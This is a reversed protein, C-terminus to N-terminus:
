SSYKGTIIFMDNSEAYGISCAVPVYQTDSLANDQTIGEKYLERSLNGIFKNM